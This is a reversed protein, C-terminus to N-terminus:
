KKLIELIQFPNPQEEAQELPQMIQYEHTPCQAHHPIIPLALLLEDEVWETLSIEESSLELVEYDTPADVPIQGENVIILAVEHTLTWQMPKLCRQCTLPLISHLKGEVFDRKQVDQYFQWDIWAEGLHSCLSDQLRSMQTFAVSGRLAVNQRTLHLPYIKEPLKASM